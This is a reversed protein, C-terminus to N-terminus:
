SDVILFSPSEEDEEFLPGSFSLLFIQRVLVSHSFFFFYFYFRLVHAALPFYSTFADQAAFCTLLFM